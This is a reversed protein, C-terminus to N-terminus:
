SSAPEHLLVHSHRIANDTQDQGNGDTNQNQELHERTNRRDHQSCEGEYEQHRAQEPEAWDVLREPQLDSKQRRLWPPHM